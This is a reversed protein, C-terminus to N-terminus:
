NFPFIFLFISVFIKRLKEEFILRRSINQGRCTHTIRKLKNSINKEIKCNTIVERPFNQASKQLMASSFVFFPVNKENMEFFLLFFVIRFVFFNLLEGTQKFFNYKENKERIFSFFINLFFFNAM